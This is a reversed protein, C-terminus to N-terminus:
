SGRKIKAGGRNLSAIFMNADLIAEIESDPQSSRVRLHSQIVYSFQHHGSLTKWRTIEQRDPRGESSPGPQNFKRTGEVGAVASRGKQNIRDIRGPLRM